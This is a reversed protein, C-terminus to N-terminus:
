FLKLEDDLLLSTEVPRYVKYGKEELYEKFKKSFISKGVGIAKRKIRMAEIKCKRNIKISYLYITSENSNIKLKEIVLNNLEFSNKQLENNKTENLANLFYETNTVFFRMTGEAQKTLVFLDIRANGIPTFTSDVFYSTRMANCEISNERLLQLLFFKLEYIEDQITTLLKTVELTALIIDRYQKYKDILYKEQYDSKYDKIRDHENSIKEILPGVMAEVRLKSFKIFKENEYIKKSQNNTKLYKNVVELIKIDEKEGESL